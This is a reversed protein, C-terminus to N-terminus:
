STRPVPVPSTATGKAIFFAAGAPRAPTLTPGKDLLLVLSCVSAFLGKPAGAQFPCSKVTYYYDPRPRPPFRSTYGIAGEVPVCVGAACLFEWFAHSHHFGKPLKQHSVRIAKTNALMRAHNPHVGSIRDSM